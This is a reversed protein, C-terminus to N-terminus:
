RTIPFHCAAHHGISLPTLVPNTKKCLNTAADCRPWFPCGSGPRAPPPIRNYIVSRKEPDLSCIAKILMATYPHAPNQLVKNTPGEEVVKGLYMVMVASCLAKIVRMDHSILILSRAPDTFLKEFLALIQNQVSIDLSAVPEDAVLLKPNTIMARAICVRQRQGGSLEHPFRDILSDSLGVRSFAERAMTQRDKGSNLLGHVILPEAVAKGVRMRPNLSGMPDQFILQMKKRVTKMRGASLSFLDHGDFIVSGSTPRLLALLMRGFTSKGCGSEGLIGLSRNPLLTLNVKDVARVSQRDKAFFGGRPSFEKTLSDAILIPTEFSPKKEPDGQIM